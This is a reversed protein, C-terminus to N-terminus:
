SACGLTLQHQQAATARAWRLGGGALLLLALVTLTIHTAMRLRQYILACVFTSALALSLGFILLLRILAPSDLDCFEGEGMGTYRNLGFLWALGISLGAGADLTVVVAWTWVRM